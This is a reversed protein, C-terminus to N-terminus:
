DHRALAALGVTYVAEASSPDDGAARQADQQAADAQGSALLLRERLLRAEVDHADEKLLGDAIALADNTRGQRQRIAAVRIRADRQRGPATVSQAARLADELRGT